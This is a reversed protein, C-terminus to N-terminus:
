QILNSEDKLFQSIKDNNPKLKDLSLKRRKVEVKYLIDVLNEFDEFITQDNDQRKREELIYDKLVSWWRIAHFSFDAWVLEKDLYKRRLVTGIAEFLNIVDEQICDHDVKALIQKALKSRALKMANSEFKDVFDLEIKMKMQDRSTRTQVIVLCFTVGVLAWTGWATLATGDINCM